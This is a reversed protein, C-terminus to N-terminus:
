RVVPRTVEHRRNRRTDVHNEVHDSAFLDIAVQADDKEAQVLEDKLQQFVELFKQRPQTPRSSAPTSTLPLIPHRVPPRSRPAEVPDLQGRERRLNTASTEDRDIPPRSLTRRSVEIAAKEHEDNMYSLVISM